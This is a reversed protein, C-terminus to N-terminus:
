EFKLNYRCIIAKLIEVAVPYKIWWIVFHNIECMWQKMSKLILWHNIAIIKRCHIKPFICFRKDVTSFSSNESSSANFRRFNNYDTMKKVRRTPREALVQEDSSCNPSASQINNILNTKAGKGKSNLGSPM